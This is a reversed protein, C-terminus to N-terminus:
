VLMINKVVVDEAKAVHDAFSAHDGCVEGIYEYQKAATERLVVRLPCGDLLCILDGRQAKEYVVEFTSPEGAVALRMNGEAKANLHHEIEKRRANQLSQQSPTNAEIIAISRQFQARQEKNPSKPQEPQYVALDSEYQATWQKIIQGAFVVAKINFFPKSDDNASRVCGVIAGAITEAKSRETPQSLAPYARSFIASSSPVCRVGQDALFPLLSPCRM